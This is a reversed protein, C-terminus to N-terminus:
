GLLQLAAAAAAQEAEKKSGASGQGLAREGLRVEVTFLRAHAPGSASKLEYEPASGHREQLLEQLLTKNDGQSGEPGQVLWPAFLKELVFHAPGYGGDLYIAGVVAEFVGALISPKNQGGSKREGRGLLVFLDLGIRRALLALHAENVLAARRRSLEGERRDPHTRYLLDSVVLDVVADGLFELRENDQRVKKGKHEFAYSRHVMAQALLSPKEFVYGLDAIRQILEPPTVVDHTMDSSDVMGHPAPNKPGM